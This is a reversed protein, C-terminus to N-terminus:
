ENQTTDDGKNTAEEAIVEVEEILTEEYLPPNFNFLKLRKLYCLLLLTILALASVISGLVLGQPTYKFTVEHTGKTVKVGLLAEGIIVIDENSAKKGDIYVSWGSDYNISTYIIGDESANITGNIETETFDEVQLSDKNLQEFGAMFEADNVTVAYLYTYGSQGEKIPAFVSITDGKELYGLDLVHPKTDIPQSIATGNSFSVTIREVSNSGTKFYLYGNGSEQVTM